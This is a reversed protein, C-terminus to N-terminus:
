RLAEAFAARVEELGDAEPLPFSREYTIGLVEGSETLREHIPLALEELHRVFQRRRQVMHSGHELLQEDWVALSDGILSRSGGERLAKLLRNRQELIRRYHA